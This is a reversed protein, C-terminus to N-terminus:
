IEFEDGRKPITIKAFGSDKLKKSFINQQDEEGHVLFINQLRSKDFHNVYDLLEDADAHASFSDMVIVEANLNYEEGFIKVIEDRETIRRGLTHQASYGVILVINNPNEINNALHHLIRGAECMGSSSIIILPGGVENLKKSDEVDRIYSM